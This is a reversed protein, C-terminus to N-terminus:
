VIKPINKKVYERFSPLSSVQINIHLTKGDIGLLTSAIKEVKARDVMLKTKHKIFFSVHLHLKHTHSGYEVSAVRDKDIQAILKVNDVTSSDNNFKLLRILNKDELIFDGLTTLRKIMDQFGASKPSAFSRQPNITLLFESHRLNSESKPKNTIALKTRNNNKVAGGMEDLLSM